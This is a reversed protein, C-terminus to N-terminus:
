APKTQTHSTFPGRTWPDNEAAVKLAQEPTAGAYLAGIAYAAGSGIGYIGAHHRIVCGDADVTFLEGAYALLVVVETRSAAPALKHLTKRISPGVTAVMFPFAATPTKPPEPPRWRYMVVDCAVTDGSAALLYGDRDVVKVMDPHRYDREATVQADAHMECGWDHQIGLITTM